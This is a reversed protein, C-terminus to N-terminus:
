SFRIGYYTVSNGADDVFTFLDRGGKTGTSAPFSVRAGSKTRTVGSHDLLFVDRVFDATGYERRMDPMLTLAEYVRALQTGSSQENGVVLRYAAYLTEVFREPSLRPKKAQERKVMAVLHSPRIGTLKKKDVQVARQAPLLRLVLPFALLRQDHRRIEVGASRATEVLEHEYSGGSLLVEEEEPSLPWADAANAIEQRATNGASRLRESARGIRAVDGEAAARALEKVAKVQANSSILAARAARETEACAQEFSTM